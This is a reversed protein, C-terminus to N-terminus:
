HQNLAAREDLAKRALNRVDQSEDRLGATLLPVVEPRASRKLAAMAMLRVSAKKSHCLEAMALLARADPITALAAMAEKAIGVHGDRAAHHLPETAAPDGIRGLALAAAASVNWMADAELARTLPAIARRDRLKGLAAAAQIRPHDATGQELLEVLAPLAEADGLNGLAGAAAGAVEPVRDKLAEILYPVGRGDGVRGLTDAVAARVREDRDNLHPALDSASAAHLLGLSEAASRRPWPDHDDLLAILAPAVRPQGLRGLAWAAWGRDRGSRSGTLKVLADAAQADGLLGLGRAAVMRVQSDRDELATVLAPAAEAPQLESLMLVAARRVRADRDRLADRLLPGVCEPAVRGLGLTAAERVAASSDARQVGALPDTVGSGGILALAQTARVRCNVPQSPDTSAASLAPIARGRMHALAQVAEDGITVNRVAMQDKTMSMRDPVRAEDVLLAVLWPVCAGASEANAALSRIAMVRPATRPVYLDEVAARCPAPLGAPIADRSIPLVFPDPGDSGVASAPTAQSREQGKTSPRNCGLLGLALALLIGSRWWRHSSM